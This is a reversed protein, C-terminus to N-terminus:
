HNTISCLINKSMEGHFYDKAGISKNVNPGDIKLVMQM